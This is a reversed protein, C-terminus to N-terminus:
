TQPLESFINSYKVSRRPEAMMKEVTDRWTQYHPTEKHRKPDEETRYIEILVFCAPEDHQQIVDFRLVGPEALSNRGNASSANKFEEIFEPKVKVNVHVILM